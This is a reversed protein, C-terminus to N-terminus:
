GELFAVLAPLRPGLDKYEDLDPPEARVRAALRLRVDRPVDRLQAQQTKITFLVTGTAPLLRLTQRESRLWQEAPAVGQHPPSEPAFLDELEHITWNRRAVITGERLRAIFGDVKAALEDAYRPVPGHIAAVPQGMKDALRWHSPFCVCAAALVLVGSAGPALVCLDEQVLRGAAELPHREGAAEGGVLALVEAGAAETGPLAAFVDDHREDLLRARLALEADRHEDELLWDRADIRALGM